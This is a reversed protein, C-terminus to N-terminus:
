RDVGVRGTIEHVRAAVDEQRYNIVHGAGGRNFIPPFARQQCVTKPTHTCPRRRLRSPERGTM